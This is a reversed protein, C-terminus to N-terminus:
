TISFVGSLKGNSDTTAGGVSLPVSRGTLGVLRLEVRAQNPFGTGTYSVDYGVENTQLRQDFPELIYCHSVHSCYGHVTVSSVRTVSQRLFMGGEATDASDVTDVSQPLARFADAWRTM